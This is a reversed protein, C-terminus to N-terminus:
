KVGAACICPYNSWHFIFCLVHVHVHTYRWLQYYHHHHHHLRSLLVGDKEWVPHFGCRQVVGVERTVPLVPGSNSAPFTLTWKWQSCRQIGIRYIDFLFHQTLSLAIQVYMYMYLITYTCSFIGHVTGFSHLHLSWCSNQAKPGWWCPIYMYM